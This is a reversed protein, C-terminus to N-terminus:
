GSKTGTFTFSNKQLIEFITLLKEDSATLDSILIEIQSFKEDRICKQAFLFSELKAEIGIRLFLFSFIFLVVKM